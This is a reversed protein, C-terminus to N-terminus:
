FPLDDPEPTVVGVPAPGTRPILYDPLYDYMRSCARDITVTVIGTKGNRNKGIIVELGTVPPAQHISEPPHLLLICDADQELNGSEKLDSIRPRRNESEIERNLQALAHVEVDYYKAIMKLGRSLNNIKERVTRGIHDDMYQTYDVIILDPSERKVIRKVYDITNQGDSGDDMRIPNTKIKEITRYVDERLKIGDFFQDMPVGSYHSIMRRTIEVRNMEFTFFIVKQGARTRNIALQLAYISKGVSPRAGIVVYSSKGINTIPNDISPIGTPNNKKFELAKDVVQDFSDNKKVQVISQEITTRYKDVAELYDFIDCDNDLMEQLKAMQGKSVQRANIESLILLSYMFNSSSVFNSALEIVDVMLDPVAHSVTMMDPEANASRVKHIANYIRKGKEGFYDQRVLEWHKEVTTWDAILCALVVREPERYGTM